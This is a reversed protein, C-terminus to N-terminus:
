CVPVDGFLIEWERKVIAATLSEAETGDDVTTHHRFFLGIAWRLDALNDANDVQALVVHHQYAEPKQDVAAAM